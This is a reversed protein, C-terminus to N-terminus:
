SCVRTLERSRRLTSPELGLERRIEAPIVVQGRTSLVTEAM